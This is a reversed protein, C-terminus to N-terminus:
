ASTGTGTRAPLRRLTMTNAENHDASPLVFKLLGGPPLTKHASEYNLLVLGLQKLNNSCQARRAAQVAAGFRALHEM